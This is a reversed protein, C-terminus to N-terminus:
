LMFWFCYYTPATLSQWFQSVLIHFPLSFSSLSHARHIWKFAPSPTTTTTTTTTYVNHNSSSSITSSFPGIPQPSHLLAILFLSLQSSSSSSNISYQQLTAIHKSLLMWRIVTKLKKYVNKAQNKNQKIFITHTHKNAHNSIMMMMMLQTHHCM